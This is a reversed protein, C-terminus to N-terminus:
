CVDQVTTDYKITTLHDAMGPAFEDLLGRFYNTNIPHLQAM